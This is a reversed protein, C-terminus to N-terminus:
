RWRARPNVRRSSSTDWFGHGQDIVAGPNIGSVEAMAEQTVEMFTKAM